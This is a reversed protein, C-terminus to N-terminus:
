TQRPPGKIGNAKKGEQTEKEKEIAFCERFGGIRVCASHLFGCASLLSYRHGVFGRYPLIKERYDEGIRTSLLFHIATEARPNGM